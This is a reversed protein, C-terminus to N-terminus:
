DVRVVLDARHRTTAILEANARDSSLSWRRAEEPTKGFAAHRAILREIRVSEDVEVYWAEDLLPRVGAWLGDEVLLYNGETLVLPVEPPVSIAGAIPEEIERNFSPAYVVVGPELERLRRLLAMYGAADFTDVAGKRQKRGLRALEANALHFGDMPVNVAEPALAEIVRSTLTSKGSGPMGVIGLIRRNSSHALARARGLAVKYSVTHPALVRITYSKANTVRSPALLCPTPRCVATRSM